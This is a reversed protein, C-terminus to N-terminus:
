HSFSIYANLAKLYKKEGDESSAPRHHSSSIDSSPLARLDRSLNRARQNALAELFQAGEWGFCSMECIGRCCAVVEEGVAESNVGVSGCRLTAMNMCRVAM